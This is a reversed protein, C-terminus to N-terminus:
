EAKQSPIGASPTLLINKMENLQSEPVKCAEILYREASGYTELMEHLVDELYDQQM